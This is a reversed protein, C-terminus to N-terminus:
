STPAFLYPATNNPHVADVRAKGLMRRAKNGHGSLGVPPHQPGSGDGGSRGSLSVSPQSRKSPGKKSQRLADAGVSADGLPRGLPLSVGPLAACSQKTPCALM